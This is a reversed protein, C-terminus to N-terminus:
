LGGQIEIQKDIPIKIENMFKLYTLNNEKELKREKIKQNRSKLSDLLESASPNLSNM